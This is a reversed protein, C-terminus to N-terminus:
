HSDGVVLPRTYCFHLFCLECNAAVSMEMYCLSFKESHPHNLVPVAAWLVQATQSM